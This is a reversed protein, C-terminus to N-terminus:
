FVTNFLIAATFGAAACLLGVITGPRSYPFVWHDGDIDAGDKRLTIDIPGVFTSKIDVLVEFQENDIEFRHTSKDGMNRIKSVLVDDVFVSERANITSLDVQITHAGIDFYSIFKTRWYPFAKQKYTINNDTM